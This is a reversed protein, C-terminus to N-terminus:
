PTPRSGTLPKHYIVFDCPTALLPALHPYAEDITGTRVPRYGIRTYWADLFAKVPHTWERPVLLELQMVTRDQRRCWDEAFGVLDRGIGQSRHAPDAVLMGFEGLQDDIQQIRVSGVIREARGPQRAVAIEGAAILGAMEAESTRAAGDVWLGDEAEAYVRNVLDTLHAVVDEDAAAASQLMEISPTGLANGM